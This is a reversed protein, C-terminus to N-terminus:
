KWQQRIRHLREAQRAEWGRPTPHYFQREVGLYDQEVIGEPADHAYRYGQGHGLQQAGAYHGDRLSKPVAILEGERVEQRASGIAATAANSKEACALYIVAQSLTLQCEPLGVFECAQMAAVAILLAQPDANGIDESALIVLRRCIFRIDEGSELMRALWYLAADPDSGRMSKILASSIDYHEDGSGDYQLTKQQMSERILATTLVVPRTSTSLVAVELVGLARRADGEAAVALSELAGPEVRTEIQGLGRERDSLARLLLALVDAEELPQFQFVQSRSLLAGNIAFYPNSTTAGILSVVGEEVDPLLADQQARNFRHIEDIFLLPRPGGTAIEDRAWALVERLEKVGSTVASLQKFTGGTEAALLHALTTKGTGPPGYLLVAGLRRADILRRLLKGAGLFHKQGVFESLRQPRMRAALPLHNQRNQQEEAAFLDM